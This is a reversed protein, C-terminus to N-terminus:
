IQTESTLRDTIIMCEVKAITNLAIESSHGAYRGADLALHSNQNNLSFAKVNWFRHCFFTTCFVQEPKDTSFPGNCVFNDYYNDLQVFRSVSSRIYIAYNKIWRYSGVKVYKKLLMNLMRLYWIGGIRQEHYYERFELKM